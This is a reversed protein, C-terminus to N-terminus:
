QLSELYYLYKGIPLDKSITRSIYPLTPNLRMSEMIVMNTYHLQSLHESPIDDKKNPFITKIEEFVKEQCDPYIALM